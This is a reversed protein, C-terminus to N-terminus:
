LLGFKIDAKEKNRYCWATIGFQKTTPYSVKKDELTIKNAYDFLNVIRKIFVEYYPKTGLATVKYMYATNSKAIQTFIAGKVDGRGEFILELEKIM